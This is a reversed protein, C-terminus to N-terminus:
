FSFVSRIATCLYPKDNNYNSNSTFRAGSFLRNNDAFISNINSEIALLKEKQFLVKKKKEKKRRIKEYIKIKL